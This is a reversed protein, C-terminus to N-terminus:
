RIPAFKTFVVVYVITAAWAALMLMMRHLPTLRQFRRRRTIWLWVLTGFISAGTGCTLLVRRDDPSGSIGFAHELVILLLGMVTAFGLGAALGILGGLYTRARPELTRVALKLEVGCEPCVARTLGTLVYECNPCRREGQALWAFFIHDLNSM